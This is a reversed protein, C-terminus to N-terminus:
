ESKQVYDSIALSYYNILSIFLFRFRNHFTYYEGTNQDQRNARLGDLEGLLIILKLVLKRM